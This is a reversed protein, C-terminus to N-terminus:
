ITESKAGKSKKCMRTLSTIVFYNEIINKVSVIVDDSIIQTSLLNLLYLELKLNAMKLVHKIRRM